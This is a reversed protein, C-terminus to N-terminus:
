EDDNELEVSNLVLGDGDILDYNVMSCSPCVYYGDVPKYDLGCGCCKVCVPVIELSLRAGEAITDGAAAEFAIALAEPVLQMMEGAKVTLSTVRSAGYEKVLSELEEIIQTAISFEHM